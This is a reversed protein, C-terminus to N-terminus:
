SSLGGNSSLLLISLISVLNNTIHAITVVAFGEKEYLYCFIAGAVLYFPLNLLENVLDANMFNFHIFGFLTLTLGYALWKSKRALYSFLGLRYTLEEVIPGLLTFTLFSLVPLELVLTNITDQNVNDRLNINFLEYLIGISATAFIVIFGYFFGKSWSKLHLFERIIFRLTPFLIIIGFVFLFFYTFFNILSLYANSEMFTLVNNEGLFLSTLGLIMFSLIVSLVTLGIWGSFFLLLQKKSSLHYSFKEIIIEM